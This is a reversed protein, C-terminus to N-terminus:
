YGLSSFIVIIGWTTALSRPPAWVLITANAAKRPNYSWAIASCVIVTVIQFKLGYLTITGHQFNDLPKTTDQTARSM